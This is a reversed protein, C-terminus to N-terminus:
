ALAVEKASFLPGDTCVLRYEDRDRLRIPCGKCYGIGCGMKEELFVYTPFGFRDGISTAHQILRRSGCVYAADVRRTECTEELLSTVMQDAFGEDDARSKVPGLARFEDSGFLYSSTRASLYSVVGGGTAVIHKALPLLPTIGVGRGVLAVTQNEFRDSIPQGLPGTLHAIAGASAHAMAETGPGMIRYFIEVNGSVTDYSLPAMARPLLPEGEWCRIMLFQGPRATSTIEPARVLMRGIDSGVLSNELVLGDEVQWGLAVM